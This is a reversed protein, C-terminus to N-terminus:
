SQGAQMKEEWRQNQLSGLRTQRRAKRSLKTKAGAALHQDWLRPCGVIEQTRRTNGLKLVYECHLQLRFSGSLQKGGSMIMLLFSSSALSAVWTPRFIYPFSLMERKSGKLLLLAVYTSPCSSLVLLSAFPIPFTLCCIRVQDASTPKQEQPAPAVQTRNGSMQSQKSDPAGEDLIKSAVVAFRLAISKLWAPQDEADFVTTFGGLGRGSHMTSKTLNHGVAFISM